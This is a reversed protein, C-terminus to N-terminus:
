ISGGENSRGAFFFIGTIFAITSFIVPSYLIMNSVAVQSQLGTAIEDTGTYIEEYANSIVISFIIFLLIFSFYVGIFMPNPHYSYSLVMVVSFILAAGIAFALLWPAAGILTDLTGFTYTSAESVNTDGVTGIGEMVPTVVDSGYNLVSVVIAATFAIVLIAFLIIFFFIIMGMGKKNKMFTSKNKM